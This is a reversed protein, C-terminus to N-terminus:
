RSQNSVFRMALADDRGECAIAVLKLRIPMDGQLKATITPSLKVVEYKWGRPHNSDDFVGLVIDGENIMAMLVSAHEDLPTRLLRANSRRLAAEVEARFNRFLEM